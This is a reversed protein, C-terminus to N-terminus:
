YSYNFKKDSPKHCKKIPKIQKTIEDWWRLKSQSEGELIRLAQVALRPFLEGYYKRAADQCHYGLERFVPIEFSGIFDQESSKFLSLLPERLQEPVCDFSDPVERVNFDESSIKIPPYSEIAQFLCSDRISPIELFDDSDLKNSPQKSFLDYILRAYTADIRVVTKKEGSDTVTETLELWPSSITNPKPKSDWERIPTDDIISIYDFYLLIEIESPKVGEKVLAEKIASTIILHTQENLRGTYAGITHETLTTANIIRYKNLYPPNVQAISNSNNSIVLSFFLMVNAAFDKIM